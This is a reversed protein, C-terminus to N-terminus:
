KAETLADVKDNLEQIAKIAVTVMRGTDMTYWSTEPDVQKVFEPMVENVEQAVFGAQTIRRGELVPIGNELYGSDREYLKPQLKMVDALGYPLERQDFKLRGDSYTTWEVDAHGSGEADFIFRATGSNFFAVLNGDSGVDGASASSKVQAALEIVGRGATSKTTDATKGLRGLLIVAQGAVGGTDKHGTMRVGGSAGAASDITGYTDTEQLDTMGHGVNSQKLLISADTSAEQNIILGTTLKSDVYGTAASDPGIWLYSASQLMVNQQAIFDGAEDFEGAKTTTGAAATWFELKGNDKNVGDDGGSIRYEAVVTGNWEGRIQAFVVDAARNGLFDMRSGGDINSGFVPDNGTHTLNGALSAAGSLVLTAEGEVAAIAEADTYITIDGSYLPTGDSVATSLQAKTFAGLTAANGTSTVHGTLNANTTVNGATLSAATGTLNTAVGSAPTGLVPATLTKNSLIQSGTLTVVDTGIDIADAAVVIRNATGVADLTNGTKTLGAGAIIQGAGSFQTFVLATTGLTIPDATTLAFGMSASASGESVFAYMGSTVDASVDADTSRSAAGSAVVVYIGNEAGAAQNKLLVRDGTAVAVGDITSANVLASAVAINATSAVRVSDKIDLGQKIADAYGKTAADTANSPTPVTVTGTFTPSASTAYTSGTGTKAVTDTALGATLSPATGTANTAVLASPTGLAPTTLNANTATMGSSLVLTPEAEVAAVAEADTYITIEGDYTVNGDSVAADLQAKTFSGLVAANGVSTVHGTLNANTTVNGATLSAATGTLNTAVGSAPTGLAPTVLAPSTAFVLSGTGTENSIVGRLQASTTAAFVSLNDAVLAIATGLNSIQSETHTHSGLYASAIADGQWVGTSITGVTALSSAATLNGLTDVAAEITAETTADLADINSLTMTGAADALIAVAGFLLSESADIVLSSGIKVNGVGVTDPDIVLDTGDFYIDADGGTGLTVKENDDLLFDGVLNFGTSTVALRTTGSVKFLIDDGNVSDFIWNTGDHYVDGDEGTGFKAHINDPWVREDGYPGIADARVANYQTHTAVDTSIVATSNNAM